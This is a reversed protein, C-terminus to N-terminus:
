TAGTERDVCRHKPCVKGSAVSVWGDGRTSIGDMRWSGVWRKQSARAVLPPVQGSNRARPSNWLKGKGM